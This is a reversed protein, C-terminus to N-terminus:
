YMFQTTVDIYLILKCLILNNVVFPFTVSQLFILAGDKLKIKYKVQCGVNQHVRHNHKAVYDFCNLVPM